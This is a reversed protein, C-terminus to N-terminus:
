LSSVTDASLTINIADTPFPAEVPMVIHIQKDKATDSTNAVDNFEAKCFNHQM